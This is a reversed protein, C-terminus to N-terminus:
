KTINFYVPASETGYVKKGNVTTYPVIIAAYMGAPIKKLKYTRKKGGDKALTKTTYTMSRFFYDANYVRIEYGEAGAYAKITFKATTKSVKVSVKPANSIKQTSSIVLGVSDSYFQRLGSDVPKFGAAYFAKSSKYVETNANADTASYTVNNDDDITVVVNYAKEGKTYEWITSGNGDFKYVPVIVKYYSKNTKVGNKLVLAKTSQTDAVMANIDSFYGGVTITPGKKVTINAPSDEGMVNFLYEIDLSGKGTFTVRGGYHNGWVTLALLKNKGVLKIKFDEGMENLDLYDGSFNSLTLTNTKKNYSMGKPYDPQAYYGFDWYYEWEKGLLYYQADGKESQLKIYATKSLQPGNGAKAEIPPFAFLTTIMIVSVFISLAKLRIKM